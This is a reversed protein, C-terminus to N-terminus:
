VHGRASDICLWERTIFFIDEATHEGSREFHSCHCKYTILMVLQVQRRCAILNLVCGVVLGLSMCIIESIM